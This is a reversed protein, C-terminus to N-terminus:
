FPSAELRKRVGAGEGGDARMSDLPHCRMPARICRLAYLQTQPAAVANRGTADRLAFPHGSSCQAIRPCSGRKLWV